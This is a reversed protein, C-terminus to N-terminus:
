LTTTPEGQALARFRELNMMLSQAIRHARDVFADAAAPPCLEHATEEFLDLWRGFHQADIPLPMHKIMPNGRYRGSMLMVSSWFACMQRLHPEWDTVRAAFVPGLLVDSQVKAYFGRVLREIMAEDIENM